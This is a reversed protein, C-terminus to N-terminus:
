VVSKRDLIKALTGGPIGTREALEDNTMKRANKVEKIRKIYDMDCRRNGDKADNYCM